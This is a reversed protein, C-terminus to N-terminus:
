HLILLYSVYQVTNYSNLVSFEQCEKFVCNVDMTTKKITRKASNLEKKHTNELLMPNEEFQFKLMFVGYLYIKTLLFLKVFDPGPIQKAIMDRFIFTTAYEAM